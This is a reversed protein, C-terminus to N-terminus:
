VLVTGSRQRSIPSRQVLGCIANVGAVSITNLM